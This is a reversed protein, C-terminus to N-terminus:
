GELKRNIKARKNIRELILEGLVLWNIVNKPIADLGDYQRFNARYWKDIGRLADNVQKETYALFRPKVYEPLDSYKM